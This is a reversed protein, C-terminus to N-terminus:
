QEPLVSSVDPQVINEGRSTKTLHCNRIILRLSRAIYCIGRIDKIRRGDRLTQALELIAKEAM